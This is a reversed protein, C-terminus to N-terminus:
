TRGLRVVVVLARHDSGSIEVSRAVHAVANRTLVHDIALVPPFFRDAPYTPLIGAGAQAVGDAYGGTLLRRFQGVDPTANFDGGVITPADAPLAQLVNPLRAMDREWGGAHPYPGNMHLAVVQTPSHQNAFTIEATILSFEFGLHLEADNIQYRSWLGTGAAGLRPDAMAFPLAKDLGAKHLALREDPTVEELMLVDVRHRRVAAVIAAPNAEGLKLNATMVTVDRGTAPLATQTFLPRQVVVYAVILATAVTLGIWGTRGRAVGFLAMAVLAGAGLYPSVASVFLTATTGPARFHAILGVAALACGVCAAAIVVRRLAPRPRHTRLRKSMDAKTPSPCVPEITTWAATRPHAPETSNRGELHSRRCEVRGASHRLSSVIAVAFSDVAM